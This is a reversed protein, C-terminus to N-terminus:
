VSEGPVRKGINPLYFYAARFLGGGLCLAKQRDNQGTGAYEARRCQQLRVQGCLGSTGVNRLKQM